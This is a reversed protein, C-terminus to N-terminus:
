PTYSAGASCGSVNGAADVASAYFTATTGSAVSVNVAWAGSTAVTTTRVPTGTCTSNTFLRLVANAEAVGQALPNTSGSGSGPSFGNIVPVAPAIGDHTYARGNSCAGLNGAPDQAQVYFTTTTNSAATASVSFSGTSSVETTGVATGTCTSNTFARVMAGVESTGLVRPLTTRGIVDPSTGTVTPALPGTNDVFFSPGLRTNNDERLEALGGFPDVIAGLTYNAEV